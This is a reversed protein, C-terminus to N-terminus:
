SSFAEVLKEVDVGCQMLDYRIQRLEDDHAKFGEELKNRTGHWTPIKKVLEDRRGDSFAHVAVHLAHDRYYDLAQDVLLAYVSEPM